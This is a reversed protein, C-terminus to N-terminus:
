TSSFLPRTYAGAEDWLTRLEPCVARWVQLAAVDSASCETGTYAGNEDRPGRPRKRGVEDGGTEAAAAAGAAARAATADAVALGLLAEAADARAEALVARALARQEAEEAKTARAV